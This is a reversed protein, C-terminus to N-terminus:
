SASKVSTFPDFISVGAKEFDARNRTVVVLEHVLATTTIAHTDFLAFRM